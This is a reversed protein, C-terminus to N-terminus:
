VDLSQLSFTLVNIAKLVFFANNIVMKRWPCAQICGMKIEMYNGLSYM